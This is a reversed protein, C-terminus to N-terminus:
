FELGAKRAAEALMKIRGHYRYGSRDFIVTKIGKDQAKQAVAEGVAAAKESLKGKANLSGPLSSVGLITKRGIDDILQAYVHNLSRYVALRPRESTGKIKARIRASRKKRSGSRSKLSQKM